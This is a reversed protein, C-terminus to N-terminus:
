KKDWTMTPIPLAEMEQNQLPIQTQNNFMPVESQGGYNATPPSTQQAGALAAIGRLESIDRTLLWEKSFVNNSNAIIRGVLQQKQGEQEALANRVIAQIPPPMTALYQEVNNVNNTPRQNHLGVSGAGHANSRDGIGDYTYPVIPQNAGQVTYKSIREFHDDPLGELFARDEEKWGGTGIMKNVSNTRAQGALTRVQSDSAGGAPHHADAHVPDHVLGSAGQHMVNSAPRGNVTGNTNAMPSGQNSIPSQTGDIPTDTRARYESVREVESPEGDFRIKDDDYTYPLRFLKGDKSWVVYNAFIDTVWGGWDGEQQVGSYKLELAKQFQQKRMPDSLQEASPPPLLPSKLPGQMDENVLVQRGNSTVYTTRKQVKEPEGELTIKGAKTIKYAMRYCCDEDSSSSGEYIFFHPYVDCIYCYSCSGKAKILTRLNERIDDYSMGPDILTESKVANRLLGAGDAVSCAGIQDPLIALHDPLINQVVGTYSENQWAGPKTMDTEHYLGTSVEMTKGAQVSEIVRPDLQNCKAVDLWTETTLRGDFNTNLVVGLKQSEIISPLCASVGEGNLMPHYLVVPKHDWARMSKSINNQTYLLPGESGRHVGETLMVTPVVIYNKGELTEYRVGIPKVGNQVIRDYM